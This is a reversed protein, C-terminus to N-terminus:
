PRERHNTDFGPLLLCRDVRVSDAATSLHKTVFFLFFSFGSFFWSSEFYQPGGEDSDVWGERYLCGYFMDASFDICGM